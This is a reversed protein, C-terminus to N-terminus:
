VNVKRHVVAAVARVAQVLAIQAQAAQTTAAEM